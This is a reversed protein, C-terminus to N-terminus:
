DDPTDVELPGLGPPVRKMTLVSYLVLFSVEVPADAVIGAYSVLYGYKDSETFLIAMLPAWAQFLSRLLSLGVATGTVLGLLALNRRIAAKLPQPKELLIVIALFPLALLFALAPLELLMVGFILLLDYVLFYLYLRGAAPRFWDRWARYSIETQQLRAWAVATFVSMYLCDLVAQFVIQGAMLGLVPGVSERPKLWALLEQMGSDFGLQLPLYFATVALVPWSNLFVFRASALLLRPTPIL